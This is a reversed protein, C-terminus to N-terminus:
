MPLQPNSMSFCHRMHGNARPIARALARTACAQPHTSVHVIAHPAARAVVNRGCVRLLALNLGRATGTSRCHSQSQFRRHMLWCARSVDRALAHTARTQARIAAFSNAHSAARAAGTADARVYSHANMIQPRTGQRLGVADCPTRSALSPTDTRVKTLCQTHPAISRADARTNGRSCERALGRTRCRKRVRLLAGNLGCTSGTAPRTLWRANSM